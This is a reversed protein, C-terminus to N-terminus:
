GFLKEIIMVDKEPNITLALKKINNSITKIFYTALLLYFLRNAREVFASDIEDLKQKILLNSEEKDIDNQLYGIHSAFQEFEKKSTTKNSFFEILNIALLAETQQM